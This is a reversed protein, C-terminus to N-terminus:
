LGPLAAGHPIYGLLEVGQVVCTLAVAARVLRRDSSLAALPLLWAVYWPLLSSAAVLMALTAWGAGDIWDTQGRWVRRLLWGSVAVFVAALAYGVIHGATASGLKTVVSGPISHWDGMSQTHRVTGVLNFVGPGFVALTLGGLLAVAAGIGVLLDRRRGRGRLPGGAAIAFPLVVGATLKIAFALVGLWGSLRERGVILAYIAGTLVLLMLMDNHGGGVGYIVLLPNLGVLAAAKAPNIGRLRAANYVLAVVGLSAATALAKYAALTSAISLPALAYSLLTFAPGYVSPIYSWKSGIYFFVPDGLGLAHPGNLYPNIGFMSGMRAYAQYSFIDTSALPPALLIVAHLAAIGMLVTKGSLEGALATVLAYCLTMTALVAIAGGAHLNLGTHGFLGAFRAPIPRISEPLLTQTGAAALSLIIGSVLV